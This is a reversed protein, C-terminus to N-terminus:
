SPHPLRIRNDDFRIQPPQENEERLLVVGHGGWCLDGGALAIWVHRAPQDQHRNDGNDQTAEHVNEIGPVPRYLAM